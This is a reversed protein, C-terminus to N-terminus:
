NTLTVDFALLCGLVIVHEQGGAFSQGVTPGDTEGLHQYARTTLRKFSFELTPFIPPFKLKSQSTRHGSADLCM